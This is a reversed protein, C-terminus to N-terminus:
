YGHVPHTEVFSIVSKEVSATAASIFNCSDSEDLAQPLRPRVLMRLSQFSVDGEVASITENGM